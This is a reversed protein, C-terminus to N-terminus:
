GKAVSCGAERHRCSGGILSILRQPIRVEPGDALLCGRQGRLSPCIVLGQLVVGKGHDATLVEFELLFSSVSSTPSLAHGCRLGKPGPIDDRGYGGAPVFLELWRLLFPRFLYFALKKLQFRFVTNSLLIISFLLMYVGM